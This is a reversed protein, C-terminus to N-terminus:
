IGMLSDVGFVDYATGDVATRGVGPFGVEEQIQVWIQQVMRNRRYIYVAAVQYWGTVEISGFLLAIGVEVDVGCGYNM